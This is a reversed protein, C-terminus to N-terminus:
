MGDVMIETLDKSLRPRPIRFFCRIAHVTQKRQRIMSSRLFIMSTDWSHEWLIYCTIRISGRSSECIIVLPYKYAEEYFKRTGSRMPTLRANVTIYMSEYTTERSSASSFIIRYQWVTLVILSRKFKSCCLIQLFDNMLTNVFLNIKSYILRIHCLNKDKLSELGLEDFM